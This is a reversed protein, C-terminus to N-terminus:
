TVNPPSIHRFSLPRMFFDICIFTPVGRTVLDVLFSSTGKTSLGSGFLLVFSLEVDVAVVASRASDVGYAEADDSCRDDVEDVYLGACESSSSSTVGTKSEGDGFYSCDVLLVSSATLVTM